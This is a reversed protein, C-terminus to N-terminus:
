KIVQLSMICCAAFGITNAFPEQLNDLRRRSLEWRESLTRAIGPHWRGIAAATKGSV